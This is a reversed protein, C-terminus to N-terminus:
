NSIKQFTITSLIQKQTESAESQDFFIAKYLFGEKEIQLAYIPGSATEGGDSYGEPLYYVKWTNGGIVVDGTSPTDLFYIVDGPLYDERIEVRFSEVFSEPPGEYFILVPFGRRHDEEFGWDSPYKVGVGSFNNYFSEWDATTDPSPSVVPSPSPTPKGVIKEQYFWFGSAGVTLLVLASLAYITIKPFKSKEEQVEPELPSQEVPSEEQIPQSPPSQQQNEEM